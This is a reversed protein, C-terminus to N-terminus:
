TKCIVCVTAPDVISCELWAVEPHQKMLLEVPDLNDHTQKRRITASRRSKQENPVVSTSVPKIWHVSQLIPDSYTQNGTLSQTALRHEHQM